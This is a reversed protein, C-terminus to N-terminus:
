KKGISKLTRANLITVNGLIETITKETNPFVQDTIAYLGDNSVIEIISEDVLIKIAIREPKEQIAVSEISAFDKQFNTNGSNSRDLFLKGDKYGITTQQHESKFLHIEGQDAIEAELYFSKGEFSNIDTIKEGLLNKFESITKQKLRLGTPTEILSLERPISFTGRWTETPILNAYTWNNVWGLMITRDKVNNFVIGAYYDKGHEVYLPEVQDSIFKTGDFDGVFYQMGVFTPGAPHGGSLSLVWKSKDSNNEVPLEYLDPCEWIRTTDGANGFESMLTWQLLNKSQYLQVKFLDPIVLAMVWKQQPEYWFVKPDRFDKRQIDLIPNKEYRTWTRGKDDSYALSQHQVLGQNGKHVNSTYIAVLCDTGACLGSTNNKDVVATGSFIMTSDETTPDMYEALALPLEDWHLLDKSIAHGWSMHGWTTGFPNYQYFLHYENEYYVLGNPDNVWNVKPTFHVQPRYREQDMHEKPTQCGALFAIILLTLFSKM